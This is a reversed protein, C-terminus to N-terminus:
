AKDKAYVEPFHMQFYKRIESNKEQDVWWVAIEREKKTKGKLSPKVHNKGVFEKAEELMGKWYAGDVDFKKRWAKWFSKLKEGTTGLPLIMRSIERGRRVISDDVKFERLVSPLTNWIDNFSPSISNIKKVCREMIKTYTKSGLKNFRQVLRLKEEDSIDILLNHKAIFELTDEKEWVEDRSDKESIASHYDSMVEAMVKSDIPEDKQGSRFTDSVSKPFDKFRGYINAGMMNLSFFVLLKRCHTLLEDDDVGDMDSLGALFYEPVLVEKVRGTEKNQYMRAGRGLDRQVFLRPNTTISPLFVRECPVWDIGEEIVKVSIAMDWCEEKTKDYEVRRVHNSLASVLMPRGNRVTGGLNLIKLSPDKSLFYKEMAIAIECNSLGSNLAAYPAQVLTPVPNERYANWYEEMLAQLNTVYTKGKTSKGEAEVIDKIREKSYFRISIRIDPIYATPWKSKMDSMSVSFSAYSDKYEPHVATAGDHRDITASLLLHQIGSKCLLNMTRGMMNSEEIDEAIGIHHAEDLVFFCKRLIEQHNAYRKEIRRVARTLTNHTTTILSAKDGGYTMIISILDEVKGVNKESVEEFGFREIRGYGEFNWVRETEQFSRAIGLKPVAVICLKSYSIENIFVNCLKSKGFAPPAALIGNRGKRLEPMLCNYAEIQPERLHDLVDKHQERIGDEFIGEEWKRVRNRELRVPKGKKVSEKVEIKRAIKKVENRVASRITKRM